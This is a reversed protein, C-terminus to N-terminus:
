QPGGIQGIHLIQQHIWYFRGECGCTRLHYTGTWAGCGRCVMWSSKVCIVLARELHQEM